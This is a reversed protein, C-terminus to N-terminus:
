TAKERTPLPKHLNPRKACAKKNKENDHIDGGSFVRSSQVAANEQQVLQNRAYLTYTSNCILAREEKPLKIYMDIIAGLEERTIEDTLIIMRNAENEPIIM